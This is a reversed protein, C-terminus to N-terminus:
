PWTLFKKETAKQTFKIDPNCIVGCHGINSKKKGTGIEQHNVTFVTLM